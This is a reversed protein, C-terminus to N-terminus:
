KESAAFLSHIYEYKKAITNAKEIFNNGLFLRQSNEIDKKPKSFFGM